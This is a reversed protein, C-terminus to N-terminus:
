LINLAPRSEPGSFEVEPVLVLCDSDHLEGGSDVFVAVAVCVCELWQASSGQKRSRRCGLAARM